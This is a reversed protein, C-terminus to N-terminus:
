KTWVDTIPTASIDDAAPLGYMAEITHLVNYHNITQGYEGKKVKAGYFITPIKNGNQPDYDDEDFTVILLSNHKKAWEAYLALNQQLWKDGRKIAAADGPAGINHMDNDMDPIVFSVTPLKNFDKPFSTFPLSLSAPINNSGTGIWNVWPCHKRAYLAGGTTKSMLYTCGMYGTSPMTHAYGKFTLRKKLLAAALNPTKYPTVKDLCDDGTVGQTSGSFFALYNPQSPHGIGHSDTFCAGGVALKTIYPSNASGVLEHYAHNEEIVIIVHSFKPVGSQPSHFSLLSGALLLMTIIRLTKMTQIFFCTVFFLSGNKAQM